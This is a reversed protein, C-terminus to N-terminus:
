LSLGLMFTLGSAHGTLAVKSGNQVVVDEIVKSGFDYDINLFLLRASSLQYEFTLGGVLSLEANKIKLDSYEYSKVVNTTTTYQEYFRKYDPKSLYNYSIGVHPLVRFSSSFFSYSINGRFKVVDFDMFIDNYLELTSSSSNKYNSFGYLSVKQYLIDTQFSLRPLSRTFIGKLFLGGIPSFVPKFDAKAIYDYEKLTATSYFTYITAGGLIGFKVKNTGIISYDKLISKESPRHPIEYAVNSLENYQKVLATLSNIELKSNNITETLVETKMKELLYEKYRDYTQNSVQDMTKGSKLETIKEGVGKIYYHQGGKNLYLLSVKGKVLYEIFHSKGNINAAFYQKGGDIGYAILKEPSYHIPFAIEFRKFNCITYNQAEKQFNVYGRLTDGNQKVIYGKQFDTQALAVHGILLIFVINTLFKKM